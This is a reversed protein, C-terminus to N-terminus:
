CSARAFLRQTRRRATVSTPRSDSLEANPRICELRFCARTSVTRINKDVDTTIFAHKRSALGMAITNNASNAAEVPAHESM